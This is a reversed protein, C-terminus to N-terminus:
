FGLLHHNGSAVSLDHGNDLTSNVLSTDQSADFLSASHQSSNDVIASSSHDSNDSVTTTSVHTETQTHTTSSVSNASGNGSDTNSNGGVSTDKSVVVIGGGGANGGHANGSGLGILGGSGSAGGGNGAGADVDQFIPGDNDKIVSGSGTSTTGHDEIASHGLSVNSGTGALVDGNNVENGSGLVAGDGSVISGHAQGNVAVAGDGNATTTSKSGGLMIDGFGFNLGGQQSNAGASQEPSMWESANHSMLDTQNHSMLDTNTEPAFTPSPAYTPSLLSNHPAYSPSWDAAPAFGYHNSVARQLGVVPDGNGLVMGPVATAAVASLQAPSVGALGADRMTQEPASVFARAADEHRFLDLIWDIINIM